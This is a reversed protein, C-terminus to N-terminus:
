LIYALRFGFSGLSKKSYGDYKFSLDISKGSNTQFEYGLQHTYFATGNYPEFSGILGVGTQFSGYVRGTLFYKLGVRVPIIRVGKYKSGVGNSRGNYFTIGGYAVANLKEQVPIELQASGGVGISHTNSLNGTAFALEAGVSFKMNDKKQALGATFISCGIIFLTLKKM